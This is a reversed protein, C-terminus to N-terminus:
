CDTEQKTVLIHSNETKQKKVLLAAKNKDAVQTSVTYYTTEVKWTM